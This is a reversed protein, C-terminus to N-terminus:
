NEPSGCRVWTDLTKLEQATPLRAGNTVIPMRNGCSTGALNCEIGSQTPDTSGPVVYLLMKPALVMRYRALSAYTASADDTMKPSQLGGHCASDACRWKGTSKTSPFIDASWSVACSPGSDQTPPSPADAAADDGNGADSSGGVPM